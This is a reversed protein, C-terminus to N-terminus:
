KFKKQIRVSKKRNEKKKGRKNMKYISQIEVDSIEANPFAKRFQQTNTM